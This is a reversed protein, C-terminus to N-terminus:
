LIWMFFRAQDGERGEEKKETVNKVDVKVDVSTGSKGGVLLPLTIYPQSRIMSAKSKAGTKPSIEPKTQSRSAM